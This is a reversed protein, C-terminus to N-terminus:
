VNLAPHLRKMTWTRQSRATLTTITLFLAILCLLVVIAIALREDYAGYIVQRYGNVTYTMPNFHHLMQIVKNQTEVPYLGGSSIMELILVAMSVVRGPGIGLVAIFMQLQAIFMASALIAFAFTGVLNVPELGVVWVTTAIMVVAQLMGIVLGPFYGDFAARWASIGSNVTRTQLPRLIFFIVIGGIYLSLSLFFPALGPGFAHDGADNFSNLEVPNGITDAANQTQQANWRPIQKSGNDLGTYLQHAGKDLKTSGEAAKHTGESLRHAGDLLKANGEDLERSGTALRSSGDKATKLGADLQQAGDNIQRVGDTLQDLQGTLSGAQGLGAKLPSSPNNLQYDLDGTDRALQNLQERQEPPLADAVRNLQQVVGNIQAARGALQDANARLQDVTDASAKINESAASVRSNLEATGASLRGAGNSLEGLGNDLKRSGDALQASGDKSRGLGEELQRAGDNLQATGDKLQATGNAIQKAGVAARQVGGGSDMVGVLIKDVAQTSIKNSVTTLVEKMVNNGIITSLYGNTDNMTTILRAKEPSDTSPSTVAESFNEPIELSFYYTGNKVGQQAGETSTDIWTIRDNDHLGQVIVDGANVSSTKGDKDTTTTGKDNNVLAIPLSNVNNFPDWFAWLYVASYLLPMLILSIIALRTLRSRKFSRIQSNPNFLAIM